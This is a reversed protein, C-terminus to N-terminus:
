VARDSLNYPSIDKKVECKFYSLLTHSIKVNGKARLICDHKALEAMSAKRTARDYSGNNTQHRLLSLTNELKVHQWDNHQM